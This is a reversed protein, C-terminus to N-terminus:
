FKLNLGLKFTRPVGASIGTRSTTRCVRTATSCVASYNKRNTVNLVDLRVQVSPLRRFEFTKTAQLDLSRLLRDDTRSSRSRSYNYNLGNPPSTSITASRLRHLAEADRDGAQRGPHHGLACRRQRRRGPSAEAGPRFARVALLRPYAYDFQYDGNFELREKAHSYTYAISASWGSERTYPKELGLLVQTTRTAKANDFLFLSGGGANPPLADYGSWRGSDYWYWTGDGFFNGLSAILGNNSLIRVVSLSTNWDGVRNRMGLSFQDAYPAKLNNNIFHM